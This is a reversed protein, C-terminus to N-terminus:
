PSYAVATETRNEIFVVYASGSMYPFKSSIWPKEGKEGGEGRGQSGPERREHPDLVGGAGM